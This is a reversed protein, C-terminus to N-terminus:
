RGYHLGSERDSSRPSQCQRGQAKRVAIRRPGIRARRANQRHLPLHIRGAQMEAPNYLNRGDFVVPTKMRRLMEEFNPRRFEGWETVIALADAGDLADM